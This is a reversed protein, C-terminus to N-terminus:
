FTVVEKFHPYEQFYAFETPDKLLWKFAPDDLNSAM